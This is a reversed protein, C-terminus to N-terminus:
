TQTWLAKEANSLPRPGRALVRVIGDQQSTAQRVFCLRVDDFAAYGGGPNRKPDPKAEVSFITDGREPMLGGFQASNLIVGTYQGTEADHLQVVFGATNETM